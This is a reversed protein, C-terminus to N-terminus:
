KPIELKSKWSSVKDVVFDFAIGMGCALAMSLPINFIETSFRLAVFAIVINAFISFLQKFLNHQIYYAWSFAEPTNINTKVGKDIQIYWKIVLGLFLFFLAALYTIATNDGFLYNLFIEKNQM